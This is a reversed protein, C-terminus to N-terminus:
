YLAWASGANGATPIAVTTVGLELARSVGVSAGRAKFAGGPNLGEDKVWLNMFGLREGLRQARWLPTCGEGLTVINASDRIPLLESYRWLSPARLALKNPSVSRAAATLDYRALLPSGCSCLNQIRDAELTTGCKPCEHHSLYSM